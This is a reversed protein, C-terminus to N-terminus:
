EYVARATFRLNQASWMDRTSSAQLNPALARANVPKREQAGGMGGPWM